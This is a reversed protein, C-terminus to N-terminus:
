QNQGNKDDNPMADFVKRLHHGVRNAARDRLFQRVRGVYYGAATAAMLLIDKM